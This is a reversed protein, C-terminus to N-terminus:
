VEEAPLQKIRQGARFLVWALVVVMLVIALTLVVANNLWAGPRRVERYQPNVVQAGLRAEVPQFGPGLSALVDATDYRPPEATDSGYEIRYRRGASALFVMRYQNGEAKVATIELPPNDANEILIQYRAERQEPFHIALEERRFARFQFRHITGHGIDVWETQVGRTVPVRVRVARSFNRNPTELIFGTLPERRTRIAMRTVKDKADEEVQFSEVPYSVTRPQPASEQEVM